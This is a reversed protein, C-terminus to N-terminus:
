FLIFIFYMNKLHDKLQVTCLTYIMDKYVKDLIIMKAKYSYRVTHLRYQLTTTLSCANQTLPVTPLPFPSHPLPPTTLICSVPSWLPRSNAGRCLPSIELYTLSPKWSTSPPIELCCFPSTLFPHQAHVEM